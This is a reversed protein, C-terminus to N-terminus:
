TFCHLSTTFCFFLGLFINICAFKSKMWVFPKVLCQVHMKLTCHSISDACECHPLPLMPANFCTLHGCEILIYITFVCYSSEVKWLVVFLLLVVLHSVCHHHLCHLCHHHIGCCLCVRAGGKVVCCLLYSCSQWSWLLLAWCLVVFLLEFLVIVVFMAIIFVVFM